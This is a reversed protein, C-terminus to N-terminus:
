SRYAFSSLLTALRNQPEADPDYTGDEQKQAVYISKKEAADWLESPKVANDEVKESGFMSDWVILRERYELYEQVQEEWRTRAAQMDYPEYFFDVPRMSTLTATRLAHDVWNVTFDEDPIDEDRYGADVMDQRSPMHSHGINLTSSDVPSLFFKM